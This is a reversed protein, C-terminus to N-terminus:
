ADISRDSLLDELRKLGANESAEDVVVRVLTGGVDFTRDYAKPYLHKRWVDAIFQAAQGMLQTRVTEASDNDTGVIYKGQKQAM